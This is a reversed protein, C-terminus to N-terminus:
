PFFKLGFTQKSDSFSVVVVGNSAAISSFAGIEKPTPTSSSLFSTTGLIHGTQLDITLLVTDSRMAYGFQSQQDVAMVSSFEEPRCWNHQGTRLNLACIGKIFSSGPRQAVLLTDIGLGKPEIGEDLYFPPGQNWLLKGTQRDFASFVKLVTDGSIWIIDGKPQSNLIKGTEADLEFIQDGYYVRLVRADLQSMITVHGQGLKTSWKLQGTEADYADVTLTTVLFVINQNVLMSRVDREEFSLPTEWTTTGTEAQIAVLSDRTASIAFVMGKENTVVPASIDQSLWLVNVRQTSSGLTRTISPQPRELWLQGLWVILLLAIVLVLPWRKSLWMCFNRWLNM